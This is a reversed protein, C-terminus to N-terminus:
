PQIVKLSCSAALRSQRVDYTVFHRARLELASAVHLVDLSRTGLRPAHERSLRAAGDLTARWFIDVWGLRNQELDSQVDRMAGECDVAGYDGRFQGLAIANILEAYGFRTIPVAGGLRMRWRAMAPSRPDTVYLARLASPDVYVEDVTAM